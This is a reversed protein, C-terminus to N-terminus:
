IKRETQLDPTPNKTRANPKYFKQQTLLDQTPNASRLMLNQQQLDHKANGDKRQKQLDRQKNQLDQALHTCKNLTANYITRQFQINKM